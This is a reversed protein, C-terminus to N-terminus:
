HAVAYAQVSRAGAKRLVKKAEALTAGTTVVDDILIITKGRITDPRVLAFCGELNKLRKKKDKISVQSDTHRIKRLSTEDLALTGGGLRAIERAILAAQNFGREILRKKSLPIPIVIPMAQLSLDYESWEEIIREYLIEAFARAIDRVGKYKLRHIARRVPPHRYSHIAHVWPFPHARAEPFADMCEACLETQTRGCGACRKPFFFEILIDLM